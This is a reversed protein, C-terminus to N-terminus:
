AAAMPLASEAVDRGFMLAPRLAKINTKNDILEAYWNGGRKDGVLVAGVLRENRVVLRRYVGATKSRLILQEASDDLEGARYIDIGSIKLQTPTDTVRYADGDRGTLERALVEAQDRIPAVLGFCHEGVQACEGIAYVYPDNTRLRDNVMVGRDTDLGAETALEANPTIGTAFLLLNCEHSDGNDLTVGSVTNDASQIAAINHGLACRIGRQELAQQLSRAGEADLQRNMLVPNRHVVTTTFGLENLGHAAELGLLGGGVVVARQGCSPLDRLQRTDDLSRFATVGELEVGQLAPTAVRAGTALVLLDYPNAQGADAYVVRAQVDIRQIRTNTLFTAETRHLMALDDERVEGALLSSLLVRNYCCDREDGCVTISLDHTQKELAQLLYATAMGAGIILLRRAM